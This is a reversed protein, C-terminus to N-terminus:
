TVLNTPKGVIYNDINDILQDAQQQMASDSTWAIHPTLIFNPLNIISLLPNDHKIPETSAVDFGAGAIQQHQLAYVLDHENVLGGRATNILLASNKMATFERASILDQTQANLPCHLSIIDSTEIIEDFPLYNERNSVPAQKRQSFVVEMGVGSALTALGSGLDGGGIIGLRTQHLDIIPHQYAHFNSASTWKGDLMDQRYALLNRRLALMLALAHEPVTHSAYGQINSVAIGNNRCYDIDIINFGTAIVAIKKLQPLQSLTAANLPVKNTVAIHTDALREIIQETSTQPYEEWHHTANLAKFVIHAPISARDLFTIKHAM